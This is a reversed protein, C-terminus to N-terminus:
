FLGQDRWGPWDLPPCGILLGYGPDADALARTCLMQAYGRYSFDDSVETNEPMCGFLKPDDGRSKIAKCIQTARAKWDFHAPGRRAEHPTNAFEDTIPTNNGFNDPQHDYAGAAKNFNDAYFDPEGEGAQGARRNYGEASKKEADSTYKFGFYWSLNTGLSKVYDTITKNLEPDNNLNNPLFGKMFQDFQSGQFIDPLVENNNLARFANEIQSKMIPIQNEPLTKANVQDIIGQVRNKISDLTQIRRTTIDDTAGSAQLRAIETKIRTIFDNLEILTAPRDVTSIYPGTVSASAGAPAVSASAGAPAVSASAGAPAVSASAGAPAVSASATNFGEKLDEDNEKREAISEVDNDSPTEVATEPASDITKDQMLFYVVGIVIFLVFVILLKM